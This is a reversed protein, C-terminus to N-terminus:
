SSIDSGIKRETGMMIQQINVRHRWFVMSTMVICMGVLLASHTIFWFYAPALFTAILAALSSIKFIGAMVLWTVVVSIGVLVNIGLLVGVFTAVGKGGKFGFFVPYLHGAFAALGTMALMWEQNVTDLAIFTPLFGKVTDGFLTIAAAKKGGLRLVNTAGPNKSGTTRPDPLGMMKCVIVASSVSGFFYAGVILVIEFISM